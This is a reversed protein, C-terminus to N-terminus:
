AKQQTRPLISNCLDCWALKRYYWDATHRLTQMHEAWALRKTMQTGTLAVRAFRAQHSWTKEPTEDYCLERFVTYIAKKSVAQGTQPNRTADPCAALISSYTPEQGGTKQAKASAAVATAKVGVLVRKRGGREGYLKGPFWDSDEDVKAFLKMVAGPTPHGGGVKKVRKAIAEGMGYTNDEEHVWRERLAWARAQERACLTGKRGGLWLRKLTEQEARAM